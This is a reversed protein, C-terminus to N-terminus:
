NKSRSVSRKRSNQCDQCNSIIVGSKGCGFCRINDKSPKATCKRFNHGGRNCKYCVAADTSRNFNTSQGRSHQNAENHQQYSNNPASPKGFATPRKESVSNVANAQKSRGKYAFDASLTHSGSKGPEVFFDARQRAAELKRCNDKLEVISTVNVLALQQSLSPRINHLLIELKAEESLPTKLRAFMCAMVSIYIHIPEELGQTRSRIEGLLRYDYDVPDFELLLINKLDRWSSIQERIGRYWLLAQDVFLQAASQFLSVDSVGSALQLEDVRELFSRPDTQGNFKLGWKGINRDGACIVHSPFVTQSIVDAAPINDNSVVSSQGVSDIRSLLRELNATLHTKVALKEPDDDVFVRLLRHTLHCGLAKSRNASYRDRTSTYKEVITSLDGLKDTITQFETDPLFDTELIAEPPCEILLKRLQKRLGEVTGSPTESRITVEYILEDRLLSHFQLSM